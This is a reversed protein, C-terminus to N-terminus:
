VQLGYSDQFTPLRPIPFSSHPILFQTAEIETNERVLYFWVNKQELQSNHDESLSPHFDGAAFECSGIAKNEGERTCVAQLGGTRLYLLGTRLVTALSFFTGPLWGVPGDSSM